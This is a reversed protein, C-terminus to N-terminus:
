TSFTVMFEMKKYMKRKSKKIIFQDSITDFQEYGYYKYVYAIPGTVGRICITMKQTNFNIRM